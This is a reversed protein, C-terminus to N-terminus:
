PQGAGPFSTAGTSWESSAQTQKCYRDRFSSLDRFAFFINQLYQTWIQMQAETGMAAAGLDNILGVKREYAWTNVVVCCTCNKTKTVEVKWHRMGELMHGQLTTASVTSTADDFSLSVPSRASNGAFLSGWWMAGLASFFALTGDPNLEVTAVNNRFGNFHEFAKLSDYIEQQLAACDSRLFVPFQLTHFTKHFDGRGSGWNPKLEPRTAPYYFGYVYAADLGLPDIASVPSSNVYEYRSAGGHYGLPDRQLWTGFLPHHLRYRAHCLDTKLSQYYGCYLLGWDYTSSVRSGFAATLFIPVGYASYSYREDVDGAGDVVAVVNWNGDQCGYLREDLTGNTDTDRDRLVLDDIYRLGWVFQREADISSGVREEICRWDPTYFFHRTESLDGEEYDKRVTRFTRADYENEQVTDLGETLKVLRNWADYSATYGQTPDAPQPITTMNGTPDYGPQAWAAGVSNTIGTIENVPNATRSQELTWSEGTNAERFGNWNGTADLTWCQGFTESTLATHSGNLWGRAMDKLRHLGDYSYLEDFEKELSRAVTDERWLRNSARNYGYKLRATDASAGYDYWRCDKVRGFRDFGSYIDGTDEDNGGALDVLTYKVDPETYDVVVATGLGLYDYNALHTSDDDVISLIRSARDNINGGEGYDYTLERGDPYIVGTPRITNDSGDEYNLEVTPSGGTVSGDQQQASSIIQGFDNYEQKVQNLM